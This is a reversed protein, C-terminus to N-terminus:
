GPAGSSTRADKKEKGDMYGGTIRKMVRKALVM